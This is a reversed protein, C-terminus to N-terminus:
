CTQNKKKEQLHSEIYIIQLYFHKQFEPIHYLMQMYVNDNANVRM